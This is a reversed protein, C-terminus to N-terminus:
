EYINMVLRILEQVCQDARLDGWELRFFPCSKMGIEDVMFNTEWYRRLFYRDQWPLWLLHSCYSGQCEGGAQDMRNQQAGYDGCRDASMGSQVSTYDVEPEWLSGQSRCLQCCDQESCLHLLPRCTRWTLLHGLQAQYWFSNLIAWNPIAGHKFCAKTHVQRRLSLLTVVALHAPALYSKPDRCRIIQM